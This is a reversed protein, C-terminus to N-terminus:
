IEEPDRDLIRGANIGIEDVVILSQYVKARVVLLLIVV